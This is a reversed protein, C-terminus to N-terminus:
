IFNFRADTKAICYHESAYGWSLEKTNISDAM